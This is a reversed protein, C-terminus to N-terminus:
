GHFLDAISCRLALALRELRVLGIGRSGMQANEIRSLAAPDLKAARAVEEQSLHLAERKERANRALVEVTRERRKTTM